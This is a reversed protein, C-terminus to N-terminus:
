VANKRIVLKKPLVIFIFRINELRKDAAIQCEMNDPHQSDGLISDSVKKM